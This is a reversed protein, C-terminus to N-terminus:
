SWTEVCLLTLMHDEFQSAGMGGRLDNCSKRQSYYPGSIERGNTM